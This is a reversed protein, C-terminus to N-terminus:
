HSTCQVKKVGVTFIERGHLEARPGKKAPLWTGARAKSRRDAKLPADAKFPECLRM